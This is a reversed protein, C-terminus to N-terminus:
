RCPIPRVLLKHKRPSTAIFESRFIWVTAALVSTPKDRYPHLWCPFVGLRGDTVWSAAAWDGGCIVAGVEVLLGAARVVGEDDCGSDVVSVEVFSNGIAVGTDTLIYCGLVPGPQRTPHVGWLSPLIPPTVKAM